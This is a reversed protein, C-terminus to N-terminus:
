WSSKSFSESLSSGSVEKVEKGAVAFQIKIRFLGKEQLLDCIAM